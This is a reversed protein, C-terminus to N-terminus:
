RSAARGTRRGSAARSPRRTWTRSRGLSCRRSARTGPRTPASCRFGHTSPGATARSRSPPRPTTRADGYRVTVDVGAGDEGVAVVDGAQERVAALADGTTATVLPNDAPAVHAKDRAIEEVTDGLVGTHELTVSTVASAEPDVVSTADYRGGIGVELVAVDVDQRGFEWLAMATVVEFFTPADGDAARENV